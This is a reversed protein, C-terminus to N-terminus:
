LLEPIALGQMVLSRYPACDIREVPLDLAAALLKPDELDGELLLRVDRLGAFERRLFAECRKLEAVLASTGEPLPWEFLPVGDRIALLQRTEPELTVLVVLTGGAIGEVPGQLAALRCSQPSALRDLTAGAQDFVTIWGEVVERRTTALLQKNPVGALPRLDMTAEALPYPLGLDPNLRRLELVGDEPLPQGAWDIVRWDVAVQPLAALVYADILGETVLLDGILDALPEIEIPMGQKCTLSPLPVDFGAQTPQGNRMAQGFLFTDSLEVLVQQPFMWSKLPRLREGLDEILESVEL